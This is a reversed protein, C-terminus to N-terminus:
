RRIDPTDTLVVGAMLMSLADLEETAAVTITPSPLRPTSALEPPTSPRKVEALMLLLHQTPLQRGVIMGSHLTKGMESKWRLSCGTTQCCATSHLWIRTVPAELLGGFEVEIWRPWASSEAEQVRHILKLLLCTNQLRLDRIGLGGKAPL